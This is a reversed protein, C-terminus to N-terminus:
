AGKPVRWWLYEPTVFVPFCLGQETSSRTLDASTTKRSKIVGGLVIGTLIKNMREGRRKEGSEIVEVGRQVRLICSAGSFLHNHIQIPAWICVFRKGWVRAIRSLPIPQLLAGRGQVLITCPIRAVMISLRNSHPFQNGGKGRWSELPNQSDRSESAFDRSFSWPKRSVTYPWGAPHTLDRQSTKMTRNVEQVFGIGAEWMSKWGHDSLTNWSGHHSGRDTGTSYM